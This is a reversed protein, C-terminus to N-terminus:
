LVAATSGHIAIQIWVDSSEVKIKKQHKVTRPWTGESGSVRWTLDYSGPQLQFSGGGRYGRVGAPKLSLQQNHFQVEAVKPGGLEPDDYIQIEVKILGSVPSTPGYYTSQAYCPNHKFFLVVACGFLIAGILVLTQLLRQVM